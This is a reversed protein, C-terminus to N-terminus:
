ISHLLVTGMQVDGTHVTIMKASMIVGDGCLAEVEAQYQQCPLLERVIYSTVLTTGQLVGEHYVRFM